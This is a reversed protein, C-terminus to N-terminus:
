INPIAGFKGFKYAKQLSSIRNLGNFDSLSYLETSGDQRKNTFWINDKRLLDDQELLGDYHTTLLLQSKGSQKLFTEIFFEILKPHLSSEIEDIATFIEIENIYQLVHALGLSRITGNSQLKESLNHSYTKGERDILKHTFILEPIRNKAQETNIENKDINIDEVNFDAHRMFELVDNKNNLDALLRGKAFTTLDTSPVIPMMIQNKIWGTVEDLLAISLNVQSYAVFVSINSLCKLELEEIAKSSMNIKSGFKIESVNNQNLIRIFIEAPQTSPYYHLSEYIVNRHNLKLTYIHKIQGVYFVLEFESTENRSNTDLLFPIVHTGDNKSDSKRFWFNILFYFAGVLNSKGSANAGYIIALKNLRIGESVEVVHYGELSKDKTAEFSLTMEDKFSMYNKVKLSHIM